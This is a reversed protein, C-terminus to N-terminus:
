KKLEEILRMFHREIDDYFGFLSKEEHGIVLLVEQPLPSKLHRIWLEIFEVLAPFHSVTSPEAFDLHTSFHEMMRQYTPVIDNILQDRSYDIIEAYEKRTDRSIQNKTEPDVIGEIRKIFTDGAIGHLRSRLESKAKIEKRM